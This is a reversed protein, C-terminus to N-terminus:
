VIQATTDKPKPEQLWKRISDRLAVAADYIELNPFPGADISWNLEQYMERLGYADLPHQGRPM